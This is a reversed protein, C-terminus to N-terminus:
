ACTKMFLSSKIKYETRSPVVIKDHVTMPGNYQILQEGNLGTYDLAYNDYDTMIQRQRDFSVTLLKSLQAFVNMIARRCKNNATETKWSDEVFESLVKQLVLYTFTFM